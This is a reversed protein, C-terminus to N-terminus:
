SVFLSRNHVIALMKLDFSINISINPQLKSAKISELSLKLSSNSIKFILPIALTKFLSVFRVTVDDIVVIIGHKREYFLAESEPKFAFTSSTLNSDQIKIM